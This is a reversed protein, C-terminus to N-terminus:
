CRRLNSKNCSRKLLSLFTESDVSGFFKYLVKENLPNYVIFTPVGFINFGPIPNDKIDEIDISVIIFNKNLFKEVYEDGFVFEEVQHCYPCHESYVYVLILKSEKKALKKAKDLDKFWDYAWLFTFCLFFLFFSKFKLM